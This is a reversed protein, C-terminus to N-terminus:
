SGKPVKCEYDSLERNDGGSKLRIEGGKAKCDDAAKKIADYSADGDGLGYSGAAGGGCAGLALLGVLALARIM